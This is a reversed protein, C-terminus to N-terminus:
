AVKNLVGEQQLYYSVAGLMAADEGLSSKCVETSLSKEQLYKRLAPYFLTFSNTISGGLVVLSIKEEIIFPELFEGLNNGFEIFIQNCCSNLSEDEILEKVNRVKRNTLEYFRNVIWRGSLYDEAVGNKFPSCWLNADKAFGNVARASGLGTGLTLGFVTEKTRAAGCFVEGQLFCAADNAFSIYEPELKLQESLLERINLGYLSDYKGQGKMLSIGEQYEFPGPMAIGLKNPTIGLADFSEKINGAWSAIIYEAGDLANVLTRMKTQELIVRKQTDILATTIHSGGIDIGAIYSEMM